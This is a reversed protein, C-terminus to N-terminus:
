SIRFADDHIVLNKDANDQDRQFNFHELNVREEKECESLRTKM